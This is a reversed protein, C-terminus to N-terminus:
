GRMRVRARLSELLGLLRRSRVNGTSKDVVYTRLRLGKHVIIFAGRDENLMWRKGAASRREGDGCLIQEIAPLSSSAPFLGQCTRCYGSDSLCHLCTRQGCFLCPASHHSCAAAGCSPCDIVDVKCAKLGCESCARLEHECVTSNCIPCSGAHEPCFDGGCIQCSKGCSSESGRCIAKGCERCKGSHGPCVLKGCVDCTHRCSQCVGGGCTQCAGALCASCLDKGCGACTKHCAPCVLGGCSCAYGIHMKGGCSRCEPGYLKGSILDQCSSFPISMSGSVAEYDYEAQPYGVVCCSVPSVAVKLQFKERMETIRQAKESDLQKGLDELHGLSEPTCQTTEKLEAQKRLTDLSKLREEELEGLRTEPPKAVIRRAIESAKWLTRIQAQLEAARVYYDRQFSLTWSLKTKQRRLERNMSDHASAVEEGTTATGLLHKALVYRQEIEEVAASAKERHRQVKRIDGNGRGNAADSLVDRYYGELRTIESALRSDAIQQASVTWERAFDTAFNRASAFATELGNANPDIHHAGRASAPAQTLDIECPEGTAADVLTTFLRDQNEDSIISVRFNVLLLGRPATRSSVLRAEANALDVAPAPSPQVVPDLSIATVDGRTRVSELLRELVYSGPVVLEVDADVQEPSFALRLSPRGEFIDLSSSPVSVSLLGDADEAVTAGLLTLAETCFSKLKAADGNTPPAAGGNNLSDRSL